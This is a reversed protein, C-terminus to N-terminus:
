VTRSPSMPSPQGGGAAGRAMSVPFCTSHGMVVGRPGDTFAVPAIGLRKLGNTKIPTPNYLNKYKASNRVIDWNGNLLGVKEKLTMASMLASVREAVREKTLVDRETKGFM